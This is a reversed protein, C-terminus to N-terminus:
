RSGSAAGSALGPDATDATGPTTNGNAVFALISLYTGASNDLDYYLTHAADSGPQPSAVGPHRLPTRVEREHRAAPRPDDERRSGLRHIDVRIGHRLLLRRVEADKFFDSKSAMKAEVTVTAAPFRRRPRRGLGLRPEDATVPSSDSM